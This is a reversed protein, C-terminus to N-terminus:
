VSIVVAPTARPVGRPRERLYVNVWGDATWYGDVWRWLKGVSM